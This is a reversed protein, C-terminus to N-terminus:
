GSKAHSDSRVPAKKGKSKPAGKSSSISKAPEEVGESDLAGQPVSTTLQYINQAQRFLVYGVTCLLMLTWLDFYQLMHIIAYLGGFFMAVQKMSLEEGRKPRLSRHYDKLRDAVNGSM